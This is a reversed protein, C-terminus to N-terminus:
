FIEYMVPNNYSDVDENIWLECDDRVIHFSFTWSNYTNFSLISCFDKEPYLNKLKCNFSSFFSFTIANSINERKLEANINVENQSVEFGIENGVYKKFKNEDYINFTPEFLILCGKVIKIQDFLKKIHKEIMISEERTIDFVNTMEFIYKMAKNIKIM